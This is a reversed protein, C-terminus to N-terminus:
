KGSIATEKGARFNIRCNKQTGKTGDIKDLDINFM